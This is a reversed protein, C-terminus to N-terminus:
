SPSSGTWRSVVEALQKPRLPKPLYDDMGSALCREREGPLVDATLAVIPIHRGPAEQERIMRTARIGDIEPMQCDMFILDYGGSSWARVAELGNEVSEVQCGLRALMFKALRQNVLNDDAVLVRAGFAPAPEKTDSGASQPSPLNLVRALEAALISRRLPNVLQGAPGEVDLSEATRPMRYPLILVLPLPDGGAATRLARPLPLGDIGEMQSDVLAAQFPRGQSRTEGVKRVAAIGGAAEEVTAGLMELMQRAARRGFARDCAVLVRRGELPADPAGDDRAARGEPLPIEVWFTSGKGPVSEVGIRGNMMEVLRKSIALGLGSGGYRRTTSAEAQTFSQFIRSRAEESMGIGTDSVEIRMGRRVHLNVGGSETFKIANSLLNLLVQRLRGPDGKLVAPVDNEILVELNLQKGHASVIVLDITEEIVTRIDFDVIELELKGSDIKSFDLIDNIVALLMEGSSRVTDVFDRQEGSLPTDLLLSTMGIVSNLPTRIEHSMTALFDAKARGARSAEEALEQSRNMSAELERNLALLEQNVTMVEAQSRALAEQHARRQTVDRFVLVRGLAQGRRKLPSVRLEFFREGLSCEHEGGALLRRLPLRGGGASVLPCDFPRGAQTGHFGLSEVASPNAGLVRGVADLVVVGDALQQIIADYAIPIVEFLGYRFLALMMLVSGFALALPTLDLGPFPGIRYTYLFDAAWPVIIGLCLLALQARQLHRSRIAARILMAVGFMSAAYVYVEFVWFWAGYRANLYQIGGARFPHYETWILHHWDNTFALFLTITPISFLAVMRTPTLWHLESRYDLALLLVMLPAFGSVYSLRDFFLQSGPSNSLQWCAECLTMVGSVLLMFFFAKSGPASWRRLSFAMPIALLLTAAFLVVAFPTLPETM